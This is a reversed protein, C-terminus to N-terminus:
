RDDAFFIKDDVNKPRIKTEACEVKDDAFYKATEAFRM